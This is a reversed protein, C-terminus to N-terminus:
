CEATIQADVWQMWLALEGLYAATTVQDVDVPVIYYRATERLFGAWQPYRAALAPLVDRGKFSPKAGQACLLYAGGLVGLRALCRLRAAPQQPLPWENIATRADADMSENAGRVAYRIVDRPSQFSARAWAADTVPLPWDDHCRRGWLLTADYQMRVLWANMRIHESTAPAQRPTTTFVRGYPHARCMWEQGDERPFEGALRANAQTLWGHDADSVADAIITLLDFDSLPPVAEGRHISGFVYMSILRTGYHGLTEEVIRQALAEYYANHIICGQADNQSHQTNSM